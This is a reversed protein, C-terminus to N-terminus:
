FQGRIKMCTCPLNKERERERDQNKWTLAQQYIERIFYVFLLVIKAAWIEMDRVTLNCKKSIVINGRPMIRIM